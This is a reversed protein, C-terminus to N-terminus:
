VQVQRRIGAENARGQDPEQNEERGNGTGSGNTARELEQAMRADVWGSAIGYVRDVESMEPLLPLELMVEVRVSNFDGMNRTISGHVRIRAAETAFVPVRITDLTESREEEGGYETRRVMMTGEHITATRSRRRVPKDSM